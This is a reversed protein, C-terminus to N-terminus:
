PNLSAQSVDGRQESAEVSQPNPGIDFSGGMEFVLEELSQRLHDDCPGQAWFGCLKRDEGPKPSPSCERQFEQCASSAKSGKPSPRDRTIKTALCQSQLARCRQQEGCSEERPFACLSQEMFAVASESLYRGLPLIPQLQYTLPGLASQKADDRPQLEPFIVKRAQDLEATIQHGHGVRVAAITRLPIGWQQTNRITNFDLPKAYDDNNIIIIHILEIKAGLPHSRRLAEFEEFVHDSVVGGINDYYGADVFQGGSTHSQENCGQIDSASSIIPFRASLSLATSLKLSEQSCGCSDLIDFMDEVGPIELHVPSITCYRGSQVHTTNTVLLPPTRAQESYLSLIETSLKPSAPQIDPHAFIEQFAQEWEKELIEGRNDIAALPLVANLLDRGLLTALSSSLYNRRYFEGYTSRVSSDAAGPRRPKQDPMWLPTREALSSAFFLGNGVAGGSAGTMLFLHDNFYRGQTWQNLHGHILSSWLGGRSGGGQASVLYVPYKGPFSEIVEARDDIWQRIYPRLKPRQYHAREVYDIRYHSLSRSRESIWTLGLCLAAFLGLAPIKYTHSCWKLSYVLTLYFIMAILIVAMPNLVIAWTPFVNILPFSLLYLVWGLKSAGFIRAKWGSWVFIGRSFALLIYFIVLLLHAVLMTAMKRIQDDLQYNVYGLTLMVAWIVAFPPFVKMKKFGPWSGIISRVKQYLDYNLPAFSLCLTLFLGLDPLWPPLRFIQYAIVANLMGFMATCLTLLGLMRPLVVQMHHARQTNLPLSKEAPPPDDLTNRSFRNLEHESQLGSAEKEGFFDWWNRPYLLRSYESYVYKPAGWIVMSLVVLASFYVPVSLAVRGLDRHQNLSLLLDQAQDVHWFLLYLVFIAIISWFNRRAEFLFRALWINLGRLSKAIAQGTKRLWAKM